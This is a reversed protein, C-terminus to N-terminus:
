RRRLGSIIEEFWSKKSPPNSFPNPPIDPVSETLHEKLEGLERELRLVRRHLEEFSARVGSAEAWAIDFQRALEANTKLQNMQFLALEQSVSNLRQEQEPPMSKLTAINTGSTPVPSDTQLTSPLYHQRPSSNSPFVICVM